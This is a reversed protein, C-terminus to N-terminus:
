TKKDIFVEGSNKRLFKGLSKLLTSKGSGNPGIISVIEGEKINVLLNKIIEKNEYGSNLNNVSIM